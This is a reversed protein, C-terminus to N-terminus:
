KDVTSLRIGGSIGNAPCDGECARLLARVEFERKGCVKLPV